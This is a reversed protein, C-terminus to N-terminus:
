NPIVSIPRRAHEVLYRVPERMYEPGTSCNLGILDIPLAELTALVAGIDTGLLMRGSTDLSVSAQIPLRYGLERFAAVCGNIAAKTELIAQQTEVIIVDAGGSALAHAQERFVEVLDHYDIASLTPDDSSPLMGSPGISGAVFRPRQPTSFRDAVRRALAAATHNIEHTRDALGWEALRHRSAQFSDTEVVDCGVEFFSTHLEEIVQPSSLVLYDYCGHYPKGGFAEPGLNRNILTAGMSGDYILVREALADLFGGRLPLDRVRFIPRAAIMGRSRRGDGPGRAGGQGRDM